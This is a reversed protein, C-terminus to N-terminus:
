FQIPVHSSLILSVIATPKMQTDASDTPLSKTSCVRFSREQAPEPRSLNSQDLLLKVLHKPFLDVIFRM